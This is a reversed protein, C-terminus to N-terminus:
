THTVIIYERVKVSINKLVAIYILKKLFLHTCAYMHKWM